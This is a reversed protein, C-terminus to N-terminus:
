PQLEWGCRPSLLFSVSLSFRTVRGSPGHKAGRWREMTAIDNAVCLIRAWYPGTGNNSRYRDETGWSFDDSM